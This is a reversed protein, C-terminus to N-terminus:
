LVPALTFLKAVIKHTIHSDKDKIHIQAYATSNKLGTPKSYVRMFVTPYIIILLTVFNVLYRIIYITYSFQYNGKM